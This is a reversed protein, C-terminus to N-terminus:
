RTRGRDSIWEFFWDGILNITVVTIVLAAAPGLPALPNHFFLLRQNDTIMRGWDPASPPAGIGLFSLGALLVLNGAFDLVGIAIVTPLVNPWIHHLMIRWRRTGLIRAAEVYARPRQELVTARILRADGPWSLLIMLGVALWYGGGVVGAVVIVVLYGPLALMFDVLRMLIADVKGGFFGSALGVSNALVLQGLTIVFPGLLALRAGVITRSFVDRGLSDTGFLHARSPGAYTNAFDQASPSHPAILPGFIACAVITSIVAFCVGIGLSPRRKSRRLARIGLRSRRLEAANPSASV